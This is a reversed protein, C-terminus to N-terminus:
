LLQKIKESRINKYKIQVIYMFKSHKIIFVCNFYLDRITQNHTNREKETTNRSYCLNFVYEANYNSHAYEISELIDSNISRVIESPQLYTM